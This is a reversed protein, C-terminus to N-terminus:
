INKLTVGNALDAVAQKLIQEWIGDVYVTVVSLGDVNWLVDLVQRNTGENNQWIELRAPESGIQSRHILHLRNITAAQFVLRAPGCKAELVKLAQDRLVLAAKDRKLM